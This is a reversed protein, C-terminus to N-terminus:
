QGEGARLLREAITEWLGERSFDMDVWAVKADEQDLQRLIQYLNEAVPDPDNLSGMLLVRKSSPYLREKFGLVFDAKEIEMGNGLILKAKPAYHRFLQGPCLPQAHRFAKVSDPHYGLVPEFLEASLAGLRVIVWRPSDYYLITSELGKACAGGDLVPFDPGFDCEVHEARTSSPKGSLNASPMVLPGVERIVQLALDHNPMRFGATPLDARALAPVLHPQIPVILTLPGPWFAQTLAEFLPPLEQAYKLVDAQSAVHIILPNNLPRGKLRFIEAVAAPTNLSAALGYVTETPMAVVHGAKLKDIAQDISIHM